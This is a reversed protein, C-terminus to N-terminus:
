YQNRNVAGGGKRGEYSGLNALFTAGFQLELGDNQIIKVTATPQMSLWSTLNLPVFFECYAGYQSDILDGQDSRTERYLVGPAWGIDFTRYDKIFEAQLFVTHRTFTSDTEFESLSFAQSWQYGGSVWAGETVRLGLRGGLVLYPLDGLNDQGQMGVEGGLKFKKEALASSGISVDLLVCVLILILRKM